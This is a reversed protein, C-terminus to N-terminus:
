VLRTILKGKNGQSGSFLREWVKPVDQISADVVTEVGETKIKGDKAFEQLKEGQARWQPASEGVNFGRITIGKGIISFINNYDFKAGNYGSIMGCIGIMGHNKVLGFMINLAEGGVNEFYRDALQDGIAAALDAELNGAKYDVCADAGLYNVVWDCKEKGGAIGIVRKAGVVHKAFQIAM